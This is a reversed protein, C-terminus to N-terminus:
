ERIGLADRIETLLVGGHGYSSIRADGGGPVDQPVSLAILNHIRQQEVLALTAHVQAYAM